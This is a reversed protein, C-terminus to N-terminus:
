RRANSDQVQFTFEYGRMYHRLAIRQDPNITIGRFTNITLISWDETDIADDTPIAIPTGGDRSGKDQLLSQIERSALEAMQPDASVGVADLRVETVQVGDQYVPGPTSEMIAVVAWIESDIVGQPAQAGYVRAGWAKDGDGRLAAVASSQAILEASAKM